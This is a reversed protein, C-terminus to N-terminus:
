AKQGTTEQELLCRMTRLYFFLLTYPERLPLESSVIRCGRDAGRNAGGAGLGARRERGSLALELVAPRVQGSLSILTLHVVM